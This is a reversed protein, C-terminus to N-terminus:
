RWVSDWGLKTWLSKKGRFLRRVAKERSGTQAEPAELPRGKPILKLPKNSM